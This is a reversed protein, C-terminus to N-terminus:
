TEEFNKLFKIFYKCFRHWIKTFIEITKKLFTTVSASNELYKRMIGKLTKEYIRIFNLKFTGFHKQLKKRM